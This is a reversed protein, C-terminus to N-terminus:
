RIRSRSFRPVYRWPQNMDSMSYRDLQVMRDEYLGLYGDYIGM